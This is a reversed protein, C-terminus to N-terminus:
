GHQSGQPASLPQFNARKKCIRIGWKTYELIATAEVLVWLVHLLIARTIPKPSCVKPPDLYGNYWSPSNPRRMGMTFRRFPGKLPFMPYILTFGLFPRKLPNYPLLLTYYYGMRTSAHQNSERFGEHSRLAPAEACALRPSAVELKRRM